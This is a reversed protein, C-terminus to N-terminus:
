NLVNLLTIIQNKDESHRIKGLLEGDQIVGMLKKLLDIQNKSDSIALCMVIECKLVEEPNGMMAFEVPNEMIGVAIVTKNVHERDTHPIAISLECGPLGTPYVKERAIVAEIYSDKVYGNKHMEEGIYRIVDEASSFQLSTFILKDDLISM